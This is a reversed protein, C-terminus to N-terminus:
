LIRLVDGSDRAPFGFGLVIGFELSLGSRPLGGIDSNVLNYLKRPWFLNVVDCVM